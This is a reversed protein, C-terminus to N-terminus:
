VLKGLESRLKTAANTWTFMRARQHGALVLRDVLTSAKLLTDLADINDQLSTASVLYAAEGSIEPISASNSAVVPTGCAMAELPPMGFGEYLSPFWVVAAAHYLSCLLEDDVFGTLRVTPGLARAKEAYDPDCHSTVVLLVNPHMERLLPWAQLVLDANKRYSLGRPVMIFQRGSLGIRTLADEGAQSVPEFFRWPVACPVVRLRDKLAPFFHSLRNASFQSVTLVRDAKRSLKHYLYRWKLRQKILSYDQVLADKEFFAADHATVALRARKTPVYSEATCYVVNVEPWYTEAVPWNILAWLAQQRSTEHRLYQYDYKDWPPGVKPIISRHDAPDALIAIRDEGLRHLQEVMNRAFRGAGTSGWINRLHVYALINM